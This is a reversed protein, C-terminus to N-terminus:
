YMSPNNHPRDTPETPTRMTESNFVIQDSASSSSASSLSDPRSKPCSSSQLKTLTIDKSMKIMKLTKLHLITVNIDPTTQGLRSPQLNYPKTESSASSQTPM